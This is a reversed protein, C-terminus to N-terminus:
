TLVTRADASYWLDDGAAVWKGSVLSAWMWEKSALGLHAQDRQIARRARKVHSVSCPKAPALHHGGIM